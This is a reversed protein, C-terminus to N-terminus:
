HTIVSGNMTILTVTSLKMTAMKNMMMMMTHKESVEICVLLKLSNPEFRMASAHQCWADLTDAWGVMCGVHLNAIPKYDGCGTPLKKRIISNINNILQNTSFNYIFNAIFINHKIASIQTICTIFNINM